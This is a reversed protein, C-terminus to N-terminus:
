ARQAQEVEALVNSVVPHKMIEEYYRTIAPHPGLLDGLALMDAILRCLHFTPALVCDALSLGIAPLERPKGLFQALLALGEKWYRAEYDVIRQDRGSADLQPFLRIVPAMVYLDAVRILTNVHARQEPSSPMLTPERFRDEIYRLITESEPLVPEGELLLAPVKGIPNIKRFEPARLPAGTIPLYDYDIGKIRAAIVVRAGFPSKPSNYLKMSM